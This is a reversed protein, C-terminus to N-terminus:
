ETKGRRIVPADDGGEDAAATTQDPTTQDSTSQGTDLARRGGIPVAPEGQSAQHQDLAEDLFPPTLAASTQTITVADDPQTSWQNIREALRQAGAMTFTSLAWAPAPDETASHVVVGPLRFMGAAAVAEAHSVPTAEGSVVFRRATRVVIAGVWGVLLVTLGLWLCGIAGLWGALDSADLALWVGVAILAGGAVTGGISLPAAVLVKM